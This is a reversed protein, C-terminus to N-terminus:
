ADNERRDGMDGMDGVFFLTHISLNFMQYTFRRIYYYSFYTPSKPSLQVYRVLINEIYPELKYVM